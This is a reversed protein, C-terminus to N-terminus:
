RREGHAKQLMDWLSRRLREKFEPDAEVGAHDFALFEELEALTFEREIADVGESGSLAGAEPGGGSGTGKRGQLFEKVRDREAFKSERHPPSFM